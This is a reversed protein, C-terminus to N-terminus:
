IVYDHHSFKDTKLNRGCRNYDLNGIISHYLKGEVGTVVAQNNVNM